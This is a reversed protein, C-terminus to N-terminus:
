QIERLKSVINKIEKITEDIEEKTNSESLTLRITGVAIEDPLGMARLVHSPDKQMSNCASAGSACIGKADLLELLTFGNVYQFSININNDLRYNMDGNIRSYPIEKLLRYAMYDRLSRTKSGWLEMNENATVAAVGMGVIGAVNSTGGRMNREQSGGHIYPFTNCKDSIYLFGVGKPGGFKHASASLLDVNLEKCDIQNHGFSQVADTHFTINNEKALRGIEKIPQIVGTENNSMMCTILTTDTRILKKIHNVDVMGNEMVRAYSVEYGISELYKLSNLVAHHEIRSSIIHKVKEKNAVPTNKIAWNDSETGGSTFYIEEPMVNLMGAIDNRVKEIAERCKKAFRYNSSPNAYYENLFPKMKQKVIDLTAKTAANDLYIM